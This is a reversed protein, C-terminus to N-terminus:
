QTLSISRVLPFQGEPSAMPLNVISAAPAGEFAISNILKMLPFQDVCQKRRLIVMLEECTGTGQLKQGGLMEAELANWSRKGEARAFAEAVKRNRGGSCTTILDAIGASEVMTMHDASAFNQMAFKHIELMGIRILAAKTNNGYGLADVFGAGLAVVNKLAGFVQVGAVDPILSIRFNPANFLEFFTAGAEKSTYGITSECFQGDAIENAINAGSLVSVPIGLEREIVSSMLVVGNDDFDIGKILSIGIANESINGKLAACTKPLFQHPLVFVLVNAGKCSEVLDPVAVINEPLKHDPLYKVNVHTTNIMETLKKGDVVEEYVWVRVTDDYKEFRKVNHGIIMAAASGWNGAGIVSVKLGKAHSLSGPVTVGTEVLLSPAM